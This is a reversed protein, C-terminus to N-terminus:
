FIPITDNWGSGEHELLKVIWKMKVNDNEKRHNYRWVYEGSYLPLKERRIGGKLALKRKGTVGSDRLGTSIIEKETLTSANVMVLSISVDGRRSLPTLKGPIQVSLLVQRYKKHSSLFFHKLKSMLLLKLGFLETEVSFESSRNSGPGEGVNQEKIGSLSENTKGKDVSSPKM